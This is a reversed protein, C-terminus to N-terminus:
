GLDKLWKRQKSRGPFDAVEAPSKEAEGTGRGEAGAYCSRGLHFNLVGADPAAALGARHAGPGPPRGWASISGDWPIWCSRDNPRQRRADEALTKARHSRGKISSESILFALNNAAFWFGPNGKLRARLSCPTATIATERMSCRWRSTLPVMRPQPSQGMSNTSPRRRAARSWIFTRWTPTRPLGCPQM